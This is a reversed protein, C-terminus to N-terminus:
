LEALQHHLQVCVESAFEFLSHSFPTALASVTPLLAFNEQQLRMSVSALLLGAPQTADKALALFATM